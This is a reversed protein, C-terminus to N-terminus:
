RGSPSWAASRTRDPVVFRAEPFVAAFAEIHVAIQPAKLVLHGGEPVPHKWTLLQILQRHHEFAVTQDATQVVEGWEPMCAGAAQGLFSLCDIFGWVCEEPDDADVWHMQELLTGRLPDIAAQVAAIRPDTAATATEPPPVPEMLEWRRLSRAGEASALLNHLLTTGSREMGTIYVIPPLEVEAIEPHRRLTDLVRLRRALDRVAQSRFFRRGLDTLRDQELDRCWAALPLLFWDDGFDDLGTAEAADALLSDIDM